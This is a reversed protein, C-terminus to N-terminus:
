FRMNRLTDYIGAIWLLMPIISAIVLGDIIELIRKSVPSIRGMGATAAIVALAVAAAGLYGALM